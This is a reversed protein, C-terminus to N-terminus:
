MCTSNKYKPFHDQSFLEEKVFHYCLCRQLFVWFDTSYSYYLWTFKCVIPGRQKAESAESQSATSAVSWYVASNRSRHPAPSHPRPPPPWSASLDCPRGSPRRWSGWVTWHCRAALRWGIDPYTDLHQIYELSLLRRFMKQHNHILCDM